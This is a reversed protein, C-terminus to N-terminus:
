AAGHEALLERFRRSVMMEPADLQHILRTGDFFFGKLALNERARLLPPFALFLALGFDQIDEVADAAFSWPQNGVLMDVRFNPPKGAERQVRFYRALDLEEGWELLDAGAGLDHVKAVDLIDVAFAYGALQFVLHAQGAM